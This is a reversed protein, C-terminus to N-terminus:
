KFKKLEYLAPLAKGTTNDFLGRNLWSGYVSNGYGNEEPFWWFLGNVHQHQLLLSIIDDTIAKQGAATAPYTSTYNFTADSPYWNYNYGFEVIMIRKDPFSTELNTLTTDLKSLNGHWFPYYSLGIIDYDVGYQKILNYFAVATNSEGSREIHIIIKAKPCVERCAAGARKLMGSFVDWNSSSSPYEKGVNWLMGYSIENGTQIFDPTAGNAVLHQLCRKTYDYLSDQLAAATLNTQWTSPITQTAPDAWTDSYHFDLMLQYGAAKIRKSLATVYDLDQVVGNVKTPNVFLRVRMANWGQQKFYTLPSAITNGDMDMYNVKAAEYSPLMSIDGGVFKMTAPATFTISDISSTPYTTGSITLSSGSNSFQMNGASQGNYATVDSGSCVFVNQASAELAVIMCFSSCLLRLNM